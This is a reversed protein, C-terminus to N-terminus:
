AEREAVILMGGGAGRALLNIGGFLKQWLVSWVNRPVRRMNRIILGVLTRNSIGYVHSFHYDLFMLLQTAPKSLYYQHDMVRLGVMGMRREWEQLSFCNYVPQFALYRNLADHGLPWWEYAFNSGCTTYLRGGPKLVRAVEQLADDIDEIHELASNSVVTNFYADPFPIESTIDACALCGYINRKTAQQLASESVDCGAEFGSPYILSAFFGDGCCLDLAPSEISVTSLLEAEATRILVASPAFVYYHSLESLFLSEGLYTSARNGWNNM